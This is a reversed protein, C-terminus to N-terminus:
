EFEFGVDKEEIIDTIDSVKFYWGTYNECKGECNHGDHFNDVKVGVHGGVVDVITGTFESIHIMYGSYKGKVRQGIKFERM